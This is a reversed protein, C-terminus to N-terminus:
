PPQIKKKPNKANELAIIKRLVPKNSEELEKEVKRTIKPNNKLWNKAEIGIRTYNAPPSENSDDVISQKLRSIKSKVVVKKEPQQDVKSIRVVENLLDNVTERVIKRTEEMVTQSSDVTEENQPLDIIIKDDNSKEPSSVEPIACELNKTSKGFNEQMDVEKSQNM